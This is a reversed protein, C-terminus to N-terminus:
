RVLLSGFSVLINLLLCMREREGLICLFPQQYKGQFGPELKYVYKELGLDKIWLSFLALM